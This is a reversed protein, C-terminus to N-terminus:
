LSEHEEVETYNLYWGCHPCYEANDGDERLLIDEGCHECYTTGDFDILVRSIKEVYGYTRM